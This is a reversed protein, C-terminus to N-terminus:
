IIMVLKVVYLKVELLTKVFFHLLVTKPSNTSSESTINLNDINNTQNYSKSIINFCCKNNEQFCGDNEGDISM